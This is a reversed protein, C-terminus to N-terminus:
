KILERSAKILSQNLQNTTNNVYVYQCHTFQLSFDYWKLYEAKFMENSQYLNYIKEMKILREKEIDSKLRHIRSAMRKKLLDLPNVVYIVLMQSAASLHSFLPDSEITFALGRKYNRLCDYHVITDLNTHISGLQRIKNASLVEFPTKLPIGFQEPHKEILNIVHTKGSCPPGSILITKAM